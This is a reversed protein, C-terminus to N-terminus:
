RIDLPFIARYEDFYLEGIENQDTSRLNRAITKQLIYNMRNLNKIANFHMNKKFRCKKVNDALYKSDEAAYWAYYLQTQTRSIFYNKLYNKSNRHYTLAGKVMRNSCYYPSQPNLSLPDAMDLSSADAQQSQDIQNENEAQNNENTEPIIFQAEETTSPPPHKICSVLITILALLCLKLLISVPKELNKSFM